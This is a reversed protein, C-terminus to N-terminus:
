GSDRVAARKVFGQVIGPAADAAVLLLYCQNQSINIILFGKIVMVTMLGAIVSQMFHSLCQFAAGATGIFYGCTETAFFKDNKEIGIGFFIHFIDTLPDTLRYVVQGNRM